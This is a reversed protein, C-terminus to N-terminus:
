QNKNLNNSYLTRNQKNQPGSATITVKALADPTYAFPLISLAAIRVEGKAAGKAIAEGLAQEKLRTLTQEREKLSVVVDVITSVEALGAGYANAIPSEEPIRGMLGFHTLLPSLLSAGGGVIMVPLSHRKGRLRVVARHIQRCVDWIMEKALLPSLDALEENAGEAKIYGCAAGADTLTLKTGGFIKADTKLNKAVSYPGIKFRQSTGTVEICSGGGLALSIMDPMNFHLPIGGIAAAQLSSRAYGGEIIGIDTSTGGIDIVIGEQLGCIRSAGIFSNTPGAGITKIPFQLAEELSLLSGNNQTLWLPCAIGIEQLIEKINVFGQAIVNTLASNLLTANEREIFGIGGIEHSLSYPIAKGVLEQLLLGAEIEQYGNLPSFAGVISIAEVGQDLLKQLSIKIAERDFKVSERGDCEYGGACTAWAAIVNNRLESPWAFGPTPFRPNGCLLRLLGVKLLGKAELLANTAHTTGIAVTDIAHPTLRSQNLLELIVSKVGQSLDPATTVKTWSLCKRKSDLLVGDTHTGGIDIGITYM